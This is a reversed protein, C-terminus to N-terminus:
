DDEWFKEDDGDIDQIQDGSETTGAETDVQQEGGAVPSNRSTLLIKKVERLGAKMSAPTTFFGGGLVQEIRERSQNSLRGKRALGDATSILLNIMGSAVISPTEGEYDPVITSWLTMALKNLGRFPTATSSPNEEVLTFLKDVLDVSADVSLNDAMMELSAKSTVGKIKDLQMQKKFGHNIRQRENQALINNKSIVERSDRNKDATVETAESAASQEIPVDPVSSYPNTNAHRNGANVLNPDQMDAPAFPMAMERMQEPTMNPDKDLIEKFTAGDPNGNKTMEDALFYGTAYSTNNIFHKAYRQTNASQKDRIEIQVKREGTVAKGFDAAAKPDHQLLYNYTDGEMGERNIKGTQPDTNKVTIAEFDAKQKEAAANKRETEVRDADYKNATADAQNAQAQKLRFDSISTGEGKTFDLGMDYVQIAM